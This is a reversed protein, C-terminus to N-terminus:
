LIEIIQDVKFAILTYKSVLHWVFAKSVSLSVDFASALPSNGRQAEAGSTKHALAIGEHPLM